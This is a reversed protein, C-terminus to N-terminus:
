ALVYTANSDIEKGKTWYASKFYRVLNRITLTLLVLTKNDEVLNFQKM